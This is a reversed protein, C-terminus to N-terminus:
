KIVVSDGDKFGYKSSLGANIELVKDASAKPQYIQPNDSASKPAPLNRVMDVIKTGNIFIIDLPFKMGKMWFAYQGPKSFIFLMGRDQALSNRGSLGLQQDASSTAVEATFSHNDITVQKTPLSHGGFGFNKANYQLFVVAAFIIVIIVFLIIIRNLSM